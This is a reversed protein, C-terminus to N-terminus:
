TDRTQGRGRELDGREREWPVSRLAAQPSLRPTHRPSQDSSTNHDVPQPLLTPSVDTSIVLKPKPKGSLPGRSMRSDESSAPSPSQQSPIPSLSQGQNRAEEVVDQSSVASRQSELSPPRVDIRPTQIDTNVEEMGQPGEGNEPGIPSPPRVNIDIGPGNDNEVRVGAGEPATIARNRSAGSEWNNENVRELFDRMHAEDSYRRLYIPSHINRARQLSDLVSRFELAGMLSPRIPNTTRHRQGAIAHNLRMNKQLEPLYDAEVSEEENSDPSGSLIEVDRDEGAKWVPQAPSRPHVPSRPVLSSRELTGFDEDSAGRIDPMQSHGMGPDDYDGDVEEPIELEQNEAIHFHARATLDRQLKRRKHGLYWHWSVVVIVYFVYFAVMVACEWLPLKGDSIAYLAFAASVLFFGIDRIFSRRAVRFPRVLAMSGAVVSTIFCAAGLLEGVALSGSDAGM